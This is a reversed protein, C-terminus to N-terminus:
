IKKSPIYVQFTYVYKKSIVSIQVNQLNWESTVSINRQTMIDNEQVLSQIKLLIMDVVTYM